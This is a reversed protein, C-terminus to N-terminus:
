RGRRGRAGAATSPGAQPTAIFWNDEPLSLRAPEDLIGRFAAVDMGHFVNRWWHPRAEDEVVFVAATRESTGNRAFTNHAVRPTAGARIVLAAGPNDHIDSGVIVVDDGGSLDLAAVAAGSVDIDVLRVSSGRALIGVGLPTAADGIIRFGALEVGALGSVIVAANNEAADGPLRLTAGRPVRSLVRVHDKLTLRERYEGPEVVVAMGPQARRIAAMISENPRVVITGTAVPGIVSAVSGLAPWGSQWVLGGVLAMLLVAVISRSYRIAPPAIAGGAQTASEDHPRAAVARAFDAGEVYVVTVNDKGGADNAAAILAEVVSAPQGARSYVIQRMPESAVLDTLGDSCILLAADPPLEIETLYIFDRDGVEHPDSGVDRYVENRRPHRMADSESIEHADEREGVPSHDPTVKEMRPGRLVYLRTDGVHGIVARGSEVVAVTLVCAMGHWEPRTAALRHIENNAITIAERVRDSAPGTQRELRERLMAVATDAAKGGAAQGGVGDVVIFLGRSLDVYCRDENVDRQRGVDSAGAAFLARGTEVAM